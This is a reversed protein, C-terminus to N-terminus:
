QKSASRQEEAAGAPQLMLMSRLKGPTPQFFKNPWTWVNM